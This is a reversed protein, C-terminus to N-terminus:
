SSVEFGVYGVKDKLFKCKHLRGYLKAERLRQFAQRLHGGHEEITRSFVLIDELYVLIFSGITGVFVKIMLRQFSEPINCLGFPMVIIGLTGAINQLFDKLHAGGKSRDSSLWVGSRTQLFCSGVM